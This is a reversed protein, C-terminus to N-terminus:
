LKLRLKWPVRMAHLLLGWTTAARGCREKAKLISKLTLIDDLYFIMQMFETFFQSVPQSSPSALFSVRQMSGPLLTYGGCLELKLPQWPLRKVFFLVASPFIWKPSCMRICVCVNSIYIFFTLVKNFISKSFSMTRLRDTGTTQRM